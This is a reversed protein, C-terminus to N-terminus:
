LQSRGNPQVYFRAALPQLGLLWWLLDHRSVLGHWCFGGWTPALGIYVPRDYAYGQSFPYWRAGQASANELAGGNPVYLVPATGDNVFYYSGSNSRGFKMVYMNQNAFPVVITEGSQAYIQYGGQDFVARIVPVQQNVPVDQWNFVGAAGQAPAGMQGPQGMAVQGQMPAQVPPAMTVAPQPSCGAIGVALAASGLLILRNKM